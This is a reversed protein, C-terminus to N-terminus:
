ARAQRLLGRAFNLAMLPLLAAPILLLPAPGGHDYALGALTVGTAQGVFFCFAFLAM